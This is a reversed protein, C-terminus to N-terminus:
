ERLQKGKNKFPNHFRNSHDFVTDGIEEQIPVNRYLVHRNEEEKLVDAAEQESRQYRRKYEGLVAAFEKQDVTPQRVKLSTIKVAEKGQVKVYCSRTPLNM